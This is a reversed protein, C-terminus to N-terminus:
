RSGEGNGEGEQTKEQTKRLRTQGEEFAELSLRIRRVYVLSDLDAGVPGKDRKHLVLKTKEHGPRQVYLVTSLDGRIKRGDTLILTHVYIRAPYSKGTFVKLDSANERFRWEKERWEKEVECEIEKIRSLPIERQRELTRDAIKVRADRTLHIHGPLITDDSLEAYGALADDRVSQGQGFPQIAPPEQATLRPGTNMALALLGAAASTFSLRM